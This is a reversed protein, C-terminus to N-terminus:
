GPHASSKPLIDGCCPLRGMAGARDEDAHADQLRERSCEIARRRRSLGGRLHEGDAGRLYPDDAGVISDHGRHGWLSGRQVAASAPQSCATTRPEYRQVLKRWSEAGESRPATMVLRLASSECLMSLLMWLLQRSAVSLEASLTLNRVSNGDDEEVLVLLDGVLTNSVHSSRLM